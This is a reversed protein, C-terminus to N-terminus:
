RVPPEKQTFLKFLMVPWLVMTGPFTILKAQLSMGDAGPDIRRAGGLFFVIAIILGVGFYLGIVTVLLNATELTM